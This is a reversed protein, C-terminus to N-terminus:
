MFRFRLGMGRWICRWAREPERCTSHGSHLRVVERVASSSKARNGGSISTM